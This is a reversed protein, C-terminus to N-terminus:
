KMIKAKYNSAVISLEYIDPLQLMLIYYYIM